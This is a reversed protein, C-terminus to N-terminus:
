FRKALEKRYTVTGRGPTGGHQNGTYQDTGCLYAEMIRTMMHGYIRHEAKPVGLPRAYDGDLKDIWLRKYLFENSETAALEEVLKLWKIVKTMKAGPYSAFVHNITYVRYSMSKKLLIKALYDFKEIEGKKAYKRLRDFQHNLYASANELNEIKSDSVFRSGHNRVIGFLEKALFDVAKEKLHFEVVSPISLKRM